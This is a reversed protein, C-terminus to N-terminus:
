GERREMLWRAARVLLYFALIIGILASAWHLWSMTGAKAGMTSFTIAAPLIGIASVWNFPWWRMGILGASYNVAFFPFLPILRVTMLALPGTRESWARIGEYHNKTLLLGIAHRGIARAAAFAINAGIMGGAWSLVSGWLAGYVAGNAMAAAEGPFITLAALIMTLLSLGIGWPGLERMREAMCPIFRLEGCDLAERGGLALYLPLALAILAVALALVLCLAPMASGQRPPFPPAGNMQRAM